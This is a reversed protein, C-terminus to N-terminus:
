PRSTVFEALAFCLNASVGDEVATTFQRALWGARCVEGGRPVQRPDRLRAARVSGPGGGPVACAAGTSALPGRVAYSGRETQGLRAHELLKLGSEPPRARSRRTHVTSSAAARFMNRVASM